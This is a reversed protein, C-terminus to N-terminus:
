NTSRFLDSRNKEIQTHFASWCATPDDTRRLEVVFADYVDRPLTPALLHSGKASVDIRTRGADGARLSLRAIGDPAKPNRYEFGHPTRKWCRKGGCRGGPAVARVVVESGMFACLAYDTSALPDGFKSEETAPGSRLSWGVRRRERRNRAVEFTAARSATPEGCTFGQQGVCGLRPDCTGCPECLPPHTGRCGGDACRDVLTCADFDDCATGDAVTAACDATCCGADVLGGDDCREGADTVADGCAELAGSTADLSLLGFETLGAGRTPPFQAVFGPIAIRGNSGVVLANGAFNGPATHWYPDTRQWVTELAAGTLRMTTLRDDLRGLLGNVVVDGSPTVAAGRGQGLPTCTIYCEGPDGPFEREALVAGDAFGLRLVSFATPAIGLRMGTFETTLVIPNADPDLALAEAVSVSTSWVESGTDGNLRRVLVPIQYPIPGTCHGGAAFVDGAASVALSGPCDSDVSTSRWIEDGTTRDLRVVVPPARTTGSGAWGSAIVDQDPHVAVAAEGGFGPELRKSWVETGADRTLKVVTFADGVLAQATTGAALVDAAADVAVAFARGLDPADYRWAVAGTAGVLKVVTFQPVTSSGTSGAVVVDGDQDLVLARAGAPYLDDGSGPLLVRRWREAGDAAALRVVAFAPGTDDAHVRGAAIVDGDAAIVAAVAEATGAAANPFRFQWAHASAIPLLLPVLALGRAWALRIV